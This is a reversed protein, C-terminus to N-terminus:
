VGYLVGLHQSLGLNKHCNWKVFSVHRWCNDSNLGGCVWECVCKNIKIEKSCTHTHANSIRYNYVWINLLTYCNFFRLLLQSYMLCILQPLIGTWVLSATSLLWDSHKWGDTSCYPSWHIGRSDDTETVMNPTCLSRWTRHASYPSWSSEESLKYRELSDTSALSNYLRFCVLQKGSFFNMHIDCLFHFLIHKEFLIGISLQNKNLVM